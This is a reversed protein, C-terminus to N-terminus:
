PHRGVWAVICKKQTEDYDFYIRACRDPSTGDSPKLHQEFFRRSNGDHWTRKGTEATSSRVTRSEGTVHVGRGQLWQQTNMGLSGKGREAAMLALQELYGLIKEPPGADSALTGIGIDVDDGFVLHDAFRRRATDVADRVTAPPTETAAVVGILPPAVQQLALLLDAVRESLELNEIVAADREQKLTENEEAYSKALGEWDDQSRLASRQSEAIAAAHRRKTDAFVLPEQMAFASLGLLQRRMHRKFRTAADDTTTAQALLAQRTWLPHQFPKSEAGLRPWYLRVAGNFCSWERGRRIVLESAAESDITCVLAVGVLDSALDRAFNDTLFGDEYSSLVLAPLNRQPHWLISELSRGDEIGSFRIPSLSVPAEGVSWDDFKAVLRKVIHPCYFDVRMPGLQYAGGAAQMEVYIIIQNPTAAVFVHTRVIAQNSPETLTHEEISVDSAAATTSSYEAVRGDKLALRQVDGGADIWDGKGTLWVSIEERVALYRAAVQSDGLTSSFLAYGAVKRM